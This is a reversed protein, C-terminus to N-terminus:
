RLLDNRIKPAPFSIAWTFPKYPYPNGKPLEYNPGPGDDPGFLRELKKHHYIDWFGDEVFATFITVGFTTGITTEYTVTTGGVHFMEETMDVKYNGNLSTTQGSRIRYESLKQRTNNLLLKITNPGLAAEEGNGTYYHNVAEETTDVIIFVNEYYNEMSTYSVVQGIQLNRPNGTFNTKRWDRDTLVYLESLTAGEKATFSGNCNNKWKVFTDNIPLSYIDLPPFVQIHSGDIIIIYEEM